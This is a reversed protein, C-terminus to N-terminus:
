EIIGGDFDLSFIRDCVYAATGKVADEQTVNIRYFRLNQLLISTAREYVVETARDIISEPYEGCNIHISDPNFINVLNALGIGIYEGCKEFERAVSEDGRGFATLCEEFSDFGCDRCINELSCMAELCGHNGCTCERGDAKVTTHGIKGVVSKNIKGGTFFVARIGDALDAFLVKGDQKAKTKLEWVARTISINEVFVPKGIKESLERKNIKMHWNLHASYIDEKLVLASLVIGVGIVRSAPVKTLLFAVENMINDLLTDKNGQSCVKKNLVNGFLDTFYVTFEGYSVRVCILNYATPNFRLLDTRRGVRDEPLVGDSVIIDKSMLYNIINTVSSLSLNTKKSIDHRNAVKNERLYNLITLRNMKQMLQVNGVRKDMM